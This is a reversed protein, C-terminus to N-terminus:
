QPKERMEDWGSTVGDVLNERLLMEGRLLYPLAKLQVAATLADAERKRAAVAEEVTSAAFRFKQGPRLQALRGLDAGIVTAIKPYGGTPPRDSMLVIPRGEGPVQISGAATGDSVINFGKAHRIQPGELLYAMRDSRNSVTWKAGMFEEIQAEDFYDAQPGLIVHIVDGSRELWPAAIEATAKDVDQFVEVEITRGAELQKGGISSRTHMSVSGLAPELQLCGAVAVYCWAGATGAAIKLKQGVDLRAVCWSPLKEGDVRVDFAGGAVAVTVPAEEVGVEVGGVSVEMAAADLAVGAARNATAHALRDMPGAETVGFRLFGRRGGDQITVGPGAALVRLTAKM